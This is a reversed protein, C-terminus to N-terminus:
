LQEFIQEPVLPLHHRATRESAVDPLFRVSGRREVVHDVHVDRPEAPLHVGVGGDFQNLGYAAHAEHQPLFFRSSTASEYGACRASTTSRPPSSGRARRTRRRRTNT